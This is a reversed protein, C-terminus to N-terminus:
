SSPHNITAYLSHPDVSPAKVTTYTVEEDENKSQVQAKGNGKRSYSISAYSVGDEPDATDQSTGAAYQTGAPDSTLGVDNNSQAKNGKPRKRRIVKVVIILVAILVVVAVIVFVWWLDKLNSSDDSTTKLGTESNKTTKTSHITARTTTQKKDEGSPSLRFPFLQVKNDVTVECELKSRNKNILLFKLFTVSTNCTSQYSRVGQGFDKVDEGDYLWKMKDRCRNQTKVSCNLTVHDGNKQETMTLVSLYVLANQGQQKGSTFQQCDYRGVDEETVKKIVLSCNEAVSLRDSKATANQIIQGVRVLEVLGINREKSYKWTTSDCNQQDKIVNECSLTVDDGERVTSHLVLDGTGTSQSNFAFHKVEGTFSDTVECKLVNYSSARIDPNLIYAYCHSDSQSTQVNQNHEDVERGEFLWKVTYTCDGPTRVTCHLKVNHTDKQETITVVSLYIQTDRGHQRCFYGGVDEQKVKKMVLSCDSTVSLRNSKAGANEGIQGQEVLEVAATNRWDSFLWLISDCNQRGDIVHECPLTVKDGGRVAFYLPQIQASAPFQLLAILFVSTQIWQFESMM